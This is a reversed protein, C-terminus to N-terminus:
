CTGARHEEGSRILPRCPAVGRAQRVTEGLHRGCSGVGVAERPGVALRLRCRVLPGSTGTPGELPTGRLAHVSQNSQDHKDESRSLQWTVGPACPRDLSSRGPCPQAGPCVPHRLLPPM